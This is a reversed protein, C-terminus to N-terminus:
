RPRALDAYYPSEGLQHTFRRLFSDREWDTGGWAKDLFTWALEPRGGYLLTLTTQWAEHSVGHAWAPDAQIRVADNVLQQLDPPGSAMLGAAPRYGHPGHRLVVEPCYADCSATWLVFSRDCTLLELAGDADLDEFSTGDVRGADLTAVVRVEPELELVHAHLGAHNGGNWESVVLNPRGDGTIDRIPSHAPSTSEGDFVECVGLAYGLQRHVPRGDRQITLVADRTETGPVVEIRWPPLDASWPGTSPRVEVRFGAPAPPRQEAGPPEAFPVGLPVSLALAVACAGLTWKIM